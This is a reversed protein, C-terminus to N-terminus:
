TDGRREDGKASESHRAQDWLDELVGNRHLGLRKWAAIDHDYNIQVRLRQEEDLGPAWAREAAGDFCRRVRRTHRNDYLWLYKCVFMVKSRLDPNEAFKGGDVGFFPNVIHECKGAHEFVLYEPDDAPSIDVYGKKKFSKDYELRM